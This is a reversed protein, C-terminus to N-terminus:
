ITRKIIAHVFDIKRVVESYIRIKDACEGYKGVLFVARGFPRELSM